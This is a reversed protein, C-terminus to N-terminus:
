DAKVIAIIGWVIAAYAAMQVIPGGILVLAGMAILAGGHWSSLEKVRDIMWGM